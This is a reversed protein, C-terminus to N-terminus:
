RAVGEQVRALVAHVDRALETETIRVTMRDEIM